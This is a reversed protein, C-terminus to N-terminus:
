VDGGDPLCRRHLIQVLGAGGVIIIIIIIIIVIIILYERRGSCVCVYAWGACQCAVGVLGRLRDAGAYASVFCNIM